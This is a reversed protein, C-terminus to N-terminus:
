STTVNIIQAITKQGVEAKEFRNAHGDIKTM